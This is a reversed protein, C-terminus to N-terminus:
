CMKDFKFCLSCPIMIRKFLPSDLREIFQNVTNYRYTNVSREGDFLGAELLVDLRVFINSGQIGPNGELFQGAELEGSGITQLHQGVLLCNM